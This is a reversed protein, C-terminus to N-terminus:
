EVYDMSQAEKWIVDDPGPLLCSCDTASARNVRKTELLWKCMDVGVVIVKHWM